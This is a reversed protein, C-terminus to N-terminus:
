KKVSDYGENYEIIQLETMCVFKVYKFDNYYHPLRKNNALADSVGCDYPTLNQLQATDHQASDILNISM